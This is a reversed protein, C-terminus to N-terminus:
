RVRFRRWTTRAALHEATAAIAARVRYVGRKAPEYTWGYSGTARITRAVRKVRLWKTGNKKQVTLKVKSGALSIPTVKGKATVRKGLRM